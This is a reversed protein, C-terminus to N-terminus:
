LLGFGLSHLLLGLVEGLQQRQALWFVDKIAGGRPQFEDHTADSGACRPTSSSSSAPGFVVAGGRMKGSRRCLARGLTEGSAECLADGAGDDEREGAADGARGLNHAADNLRWEGDRARRRALLPVLILAVPAEIRQRLLDGLDGLRLFLPLLLQLRAAVRYTCRRALAASPTATDLVRRKIIHQAHLGVSQRAVNLAGVHLKRHLHM